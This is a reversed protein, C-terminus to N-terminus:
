RGKSRWYLMPGPFIEKLDDSLEPHTRITPCIELTILPQPTNLRLAPGLKQEVLNQLEQQAPEIETPSSAMADLVQGLAQTLRSELGAASVQNVAQELGERNQCGPLTLRVSAPGPEEGRLVSFGPSALILPVWPPSLRSGLIARWFYFRLLALEPDPPAAPTLLPDHSPPPRFAPPEEWPEPALWTDLESQQDQLVLLRAEQEAWMSELQWALTWIMSAEPLQPFGAEPPLPPLAPPPEPKGKIARILDNTDEQEEEGAKFELYAKWQLLEGPHYNRWDFALSKDLPPLPLSQLGTHDPQGELHGVLLDPFFLPLSWYEAQWGIVLPFAAVQWTGHRTEATEM